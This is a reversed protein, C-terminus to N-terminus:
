TLCTVSRNFVGTLSKADSLLDPWEDHVFEISVHKLDILRGDAVDVLDSVYVTEGRSEWARGAVYLCESSDQDIVVTIEVTRSKM